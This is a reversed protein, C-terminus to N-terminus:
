RIIDGFTELGLQPQNLIFNFKRDVKSYLNLNMEM